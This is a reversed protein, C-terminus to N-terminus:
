PVFTRVWKDFVHTDLRNAPRPPRSLSAKRRYEDVRRRAERELMRAGIWRRRAPGAYAGSLASM